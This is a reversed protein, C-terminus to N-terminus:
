RVELTLQEAKMRETMAAFIMDEALTEAWRVRRKASEIDMGTLEALDNQPYKRNRYRKIVVARIPSNPKFTEVMCQEVFEADDQEKALSIVSSGSSGPLFIEKVKRVLGEGSYGQKGLNTFILRIREGQESDWSERWMLRGIVSCSLGDPSSNGRCKEGWNHLMYRAWTRQLPTIKKAGYGWLRRLQSEREFHALEVFPDSKMGEGLM